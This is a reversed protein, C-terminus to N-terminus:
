WIEIRHKEENWIKERVPILFLTGCGSDPSDECRLKRNYQPGTVEMVRKMSCYKLESLNMDLLRKGCKPCNVVEVLVESM